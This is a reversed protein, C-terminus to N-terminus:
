NIANDDVDQVILIPEISNKKTKTRTRKDKRKNPIKGNHVDIKNDRESDKKEEEIDELEEKINNEEPGEENKDLCLSQFLIRIGFFLPNNYLNLIKNQERKILDEIIKQSKRVINKRESQGILNTDNKFVVIDNDNINNEKEKDKQINTKNDNSDIIDEGKYINQEKIDDNEDNNKEPNGPFLLFHLVKDRHKRAFEKFRSIFDSKSNNINNKSHITKALGLFLRQILSNSIKKRAKYYTEMLNINEFNQIILQNESKTILGNERLKNFFNKIGEKKTMPNIREYDNYFNFYYDEYTQSNKLDSENIGIFDFAFIQNYPIIILVGFFIINFMRWFNSKNAEELFIYEGLCLMFFNLIFYNSYFECIKSNLMEPRKYMKSFNFKEILYGFIFGILSILISMPFIPMYLFSMLLTKSIYSYKSSIEMDRLEYLNNLEKQTYYDRKKEVLCIKIKQLIFGFNITWMIPTLFSNTLFLTLMNTVLLDYNSRSNYYNCAILPIVGSTTFTFLTLKVSYSLYYNSMSIQKEKKTLYNLIYEFISNLISIVLSIALSVLYKVIAKKDSESKKFKIQIYNLALIIIFCIFIIILSIFYILLIRLIREIWSYQLNEFLIDEPEPAKDVIINRKLLFRKRKKKDVLCYCLFYKLNKIQVLIKMILNKPYPSLFKEQEEINSFTVFIVGSFNDETLNETQKLLEKLKVELKNKEEELESLIHSKEFLKCTFINLDFIDLPYYFYKRDKDKLDLEENKKIQKPHFNIKIIEKKLEQIKHEIKMFESIKYCINIKCINFKDGKNTECIKNKVFENFGDLINIEKNNPFDELGLEEKESNVDISSPIKGEIKIIQNEVDFTSGEKNNQKRIYENIKNIKKWFKRFASYLNTIIITYDSPSTVSIDYQKNINFLIIIYLLNIIFLTILGIFYEFNYNMIIKDINDINDYSATLKKYINRYEKLNMSNFKFEWDTDKIFIDSIEDVNIFNICDPFTVNIARKEKKYIQYCIETLEKTYINNLILSPLAILVFAFFLILTSFKYFSFYLSIGRGFEAFKDTNECFSLTKLYVNDNSPLYCCPCFKTQGDFEKIKILPRNAEKHIKANEIMEELNLHRRPKFELFSPISIQSKRIRLNEFWTLSSRKKNSNIKANSENRSEEKSPNVRM